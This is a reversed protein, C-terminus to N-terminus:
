YEKELWWIGTCEPLILMKENVVRDALEDGFFFRTLNDAEDLTKFKYDTRIWKHKFGFSEELMRYYNNMSSPIIPTENGTGLTELIIIFGNPRLVRKAEGIVKYINNEWNPINPKGVYFISWGSVVIDVSKDPVPITRHDAVKVRWHSYGLNTLKKAAVDLMAQSIDFATITRATPALMCTLRGTGAGLDIVDKDRFSTIRELSKLINGEYDERSILCDYQDAQKSYIISSDPKGMINM